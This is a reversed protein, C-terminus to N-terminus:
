KAVVSEEPSADEDSGMASLSYHSKDENAEPSRDSTGAVHSEGGGEYYSGCDAVPTLVTGTTPPLTDQPEPPTVKGDVVDRTVDQQILVFFQPQGEETLLLSLKM